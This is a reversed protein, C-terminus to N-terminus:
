NALNWWVRGTVTSGTSNYLFLVRANTVSELEICEDAYATYTTDGLAYGGGSGVAGPDIPWVRRWTSGQLAYLSYDLDGNVCIRVFSASATLNLKYVGPSGSPVSVDGFGQGPRLDAAQATVVVLTILVFVVWKM